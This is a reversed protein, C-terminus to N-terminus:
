MYKRLNGAGLRDMDLRYCVKHLLVLLIVGVLFIGMCILTAQVMSIETFIAWNRKTVLMALVMFVPAIIVMIITSLVMKKYAISYYIMITVLALTSMIMCWGISSDIPGVLIYAGEADGSQLDLYKMWFGVVGVGFAVLMGLSNYVVISYFSLTRRRPSASVVDAHMNSISTQTMVGSGVGVYLMGMVLNFVEFVPAFLFFLGIVLFIGGCILNPIYGYGYKILKLNRRFEKM